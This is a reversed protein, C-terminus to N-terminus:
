FPVYTHEAHDLPSTLLPALVQAVTHGDMEINVQAMGGIGVQGGAGIGTDLTGQNLLMANTQAQSIETLTPPTGAIYADLLGNGTSGGDGGHFSQMAQELQAASVTLSSATAAFSEELGVLEEAILMRDAQISQRMGSFELAIAETGAAFEDILAPMETRLDGWLVDRWSVPESLPGEDAYSHPLLAAVDAVMKRIPALVGDVRSVIGQRLLEMFASGAREFRGKLEAFGAEVSGTFTAWSEVFHNRIAVWAAGLAEQILPLAASVVRQLSAWVVSFHDTIADWAGQWDGQILNLVVSILTKISSFATDILATIVVMTADLVKSITDWHEHWFAAFRATTEQIREVIVDWTQQLEPFIVEWFVALNRALAELIPEVYRWLVATQESVDSTSAQWGKALETIVDFVQGVILTLETFRQGVGVLIPQADKIAGPLWEAFSSILPAVIPLLQEGIQVQLDAMSSQIIKTANAMGTSTRSFDGQATTTQEMIIAYRAQVKAAETLEGNVTELGLEMGKAEVMAANMNVGLARLPEAEGILGARLKELADSAAINNFSGLDSALEVMETSLGAADKSGLGMAVFLNGLTGAAALAEGRSQGMATAATSAWAEIDAANDGFVVGVKSLSENVDSAAQTSSVGIGILAAGAAVSGLAIAGAAAKMAGGLKSSISDRAGDLDKSLQGVDARIPVFASGLEVGPM